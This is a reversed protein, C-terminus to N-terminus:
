KLCLFPYQVSTKLKEKLFIVLSIQEMFWHTEKNQLHKAESMFFDLYFLGTTLFVLYSILVLLQLNLSIGPQICCVICNNRVCKTCVLFQQLEHWALNDTDRLFRLFMRMCFCEPGVKVKLCRGGSVSEILIKKKKIQLVYTRETPGSVVRHQVKPSM